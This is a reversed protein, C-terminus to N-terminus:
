RVLFKGWRRGYGAAARGAAGGGSKIGAWAGKVGGARLRGLGGGKYWRSARLGGRLGVYGGGLAALLGAGHKRAKKSKLYKKTKKYVSM